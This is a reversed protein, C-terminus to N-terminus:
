RRTIFLSLLNPIPSVYQLMILAVSSLGVGLIMSLLSFRFTTGGLNPVLQLNEREDVTNLIVSTIEALSILPFFFFSMCIPFFFLYYQKKKCM